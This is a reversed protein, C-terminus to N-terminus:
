WALLMLLQLPRQSKQTPLAQMQLLTQSWDNLPRFSCRRSTLEWLAFTFSCNFYIHDRSEHDSYYLLCLPSVQLGWSLLRDRTPCRDFVMLWTHFQQRPIGYSFWVSSAWAVEERNGRLYSYTQGTSYKLSM